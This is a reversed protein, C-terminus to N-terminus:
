SPLLTDGNQIRTIVAQGEAGLHSLVSCYAQRLTKDTGVGRWHECELVLKSCDGIFATVLQPHLVAVTELSHLTSAQHIRLHRSLFSRLISLLESQLNPPTDKKCADMMAALLSSMTKKVSAVDCLLLYELVTALLVVADRVVQQPNYTRRILEQLFAMTYPLHSPPQQGHYALYHQRIVKLVLGRLMSIQPHLQRSCSKHLSVMIPHNATSVASSPGAMLSSAKQGQFRLFYQQVLEHLKRQIFDDRQLDLSALGEMFLHLTERIASLMPPPLSKKPNFLAPPLVLETLIGPLQSQSKGKVYLISACYKVVHGTVKYIWLLDVASRMTRIMPQILEVLDGFYSLITQRKQLREQFGQASNFHYGLAQIFQLMSHKHQNGTGDMVNTSDHSQSNIIASVDELKYVLRTLEQMQHSPQPSHLGCRLWAHVLASSWKARGVGAQLKETFSQNPLLHCLYRVTISHHVRPNNVGFYQFLEMPTPHVQTQDPIEPFKLDTALLTFGTAVDALELPPTQTTAHKKIFPYVNDWLLQALGKYKQMLLDNDTSMEAAINSPLRQMLTQKYLIRHRAMITQIFTLLTRMEHDSSADLLSRLGCGILKEESLSLKNSADFVEQASEIYSLILGWLQSKRGSDLSKNSMEMCVSNFGQVLRDAVIGLDYGQEEHVLCMTFLGRWILRVKGNSLTDTPLLDLFDLMRGSVASLDTVLALTMFLNLFRNLGTEDLEKMSRGHFKSYFRGQLQRWGADKMQKLHTALIRLFLQSSNEQHRSGTHDSVRQKCQDYWSSASKCITAFNGLGQGPIVLKSNLRKYFHGWLLTLVSGKPEWLHSLVLCSKLFSQMHGEDPLTGNPAFMIKLLDEVLLWYSRIPKGQNSSSLQGDMNYQYLPAVNHLLWWCLGIPDKPKPRSGEEYPDLTTSDSSADFFPTVAAHFNCWFSDTSYQVHRYDLFQICAIWLDRLCGDTFPGQQHHDHLGLKNYKVIAICLLDQLLAQSKENLTTVVEQEGPTGRLKSHLVHLVQVVSWQICLNIHYLLSGTSDQRPVTAASHQLIGPHLESVRGNFLSLTSLNALLLAPFGAIRQTFISPTQNPELPSFFRHVFVQVYEMFGMVHNHLRKAESVIPDLLSWNSGQGLLSQIKTLYHKALNFLHETSDLLAVGTVYTHGFLECTGDQYLAPCPDKGLLVRNLLSATSSQDRLNSRFCEICALCQTSDQRFRELSLTPQHDVDHQELEIDNGGCPSMPPTISYELDM